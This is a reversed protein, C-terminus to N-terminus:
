CNQFYYAPSGPVASEALPPLEEGEYAKGFMTEGILKDDQRTVRVVALSKANINAELFAGVSKLMEVEDFLQAREFVEVSPLAGRNLVSAKVSQIFPM